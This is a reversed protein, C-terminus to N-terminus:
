ATASDARKRWRIGAEIFEDIDGDLVASPNGVEYETRLDKVMQYPHLVYSRMQNGWSGSTDGKLADMEAREELRRRELLRAELVRLAAARNQIQSKENQCSVVIGTPIHTIRVASDTTNVSQGGPGSSRFIDIRIENPDIEVEVEDMEPLVAVTATSTHIRGGSETQPIRQVRHVGSEYKLKSYAGQGKVQFVIEKFGGIGSENQSLIATKWRNHEAYRSYIRFLDAAFLGAEDGGAGARIEVIVNKDDNPDQPLLMLRLEEELAEQEDALTDIEEKVMDKMDDDTEANAGTVLPAATDREATATLATAVASSTLALCSAEISFSFALSALEAAKDFSTLKRKKTDRFCHIVLVCLLAAAM